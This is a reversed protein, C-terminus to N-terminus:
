QADNNDERNLRACVGAILICIGIFGVMVAGSLILTELFTM